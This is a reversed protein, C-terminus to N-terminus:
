RKKVNCTMIKYADWFNKKYDKRRRYSDQLCLLKWWRKSIAFYLKGQDTLYKDNYQKRWTSDRNEQLAAIAIPVAVINLGKKLCEALFLADEGHSHEAGGGFCQNFFIANERISKTRIAIRVTGYRLYNWKNIKKIKCNQYRKRGKAYPENINFIIVDAKPNSEFVGQVTQVYGNEYVMDDDAFLCVDGTARMLANNRNLGVGRERFSLYVAKHGLYDFREVRDFDCQNGVIVDSQINMEDLLSYDKQNMTAILVQVDM